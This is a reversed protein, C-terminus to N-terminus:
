CCEQVFRVLMCITQIAEDRMKIRHAAEWDNAGGFEAKCRKEGWFVEDRLELFEEEIVALGEHTSNFDTSAYKEPISALEEQILDITTQNIKKM